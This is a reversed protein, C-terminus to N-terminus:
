RGGGELKFPDAIAGERMVEGSGFRAILLAEARGVDKKRQLMHGVNPFLQLARTRSADKEAGKLGAATKWREPPILTYPLGLAEIVGEIKGATHGFNFASTSGMRAGGSGGAARAAPPMARVLELYVHCEMAKYGLLIRALEGGNIQQKNGTKGRQMTPLDHLEIGSLAGMAAIAGTVGPDIGIFIV